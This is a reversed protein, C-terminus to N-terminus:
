LQNLKKPCNPDTCLNNNYIFESIKERLSPMSSNFLEFNELEKSNLDELRTKDLQIELFALAAHLTDAEQTTLNINLNFM